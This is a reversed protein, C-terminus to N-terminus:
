GLGLFTRADDFDRQDVDTALVYWKEKAPGGRLFSWAKEGGPATTPLALVTHDRQVREQRRFTERPRMMVGARLILHRM